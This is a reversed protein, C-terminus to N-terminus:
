SDVGWKGVKLSNDASSTVLLPESPLCRMGTVAGNHCDRMQSQLRKEELNWLAIHGVPSGTALVPQGDTWGYLCLYVRPMYVCHASM